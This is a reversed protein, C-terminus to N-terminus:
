TARPAKARRVRWTGARTELSGVYRSTFVGSIEEQVLYGEFTTLMTCGSVADVYAALEGSIRNGNMRVFRIPLVQKHALHDEESLPPANPVYARHQREDLMIVEGFASDSRAALVFTITGSSGTASAYTGTWEGALQQLEHSTALVPVMTRTPACATLIFLLMLLINSLRRSKKSSIKM